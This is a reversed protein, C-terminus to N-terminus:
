TRSKTVGHVPAWWAGGDMSNKLCSYQLPYDNEEGPSDEWCLSLVQTEQMAPLNKVPQVMIFSVFFLVRDHFMLINSNMLFVHCQLNIIKAAKRHKPLHSIRPESFDNSQDAGWSDLALIRSIEM